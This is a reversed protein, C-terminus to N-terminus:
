YYYYYYYYISMEITGSVIWAHAAECRKVIVYFILVYCYLCFNFHFPFSVPNLSTTSAWEKKNQEEM